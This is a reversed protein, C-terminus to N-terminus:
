WDAQAALEQALKQVAGASLSTRGDEGAVTVVVLIDGSGTTPLEVSVVNGSPTLTGTRPQADQLKKVYPALDDRRMGADRQILPLMMPLAAGKKGTGVTYVEVPESGIRYNCYLITGQNQALPSDAGVTHETDASVTDSGTAPVANGAAGASKAAKAIDYPVPCTTAPKAHVADALKVLGGRSAM